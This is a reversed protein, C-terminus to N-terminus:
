CCHAFWGLFSSILPSKGVKSCHFECPLDHQDQRGQRCPLSLLSVRPVLNYYSVGADPDPVTHVTGCSFEKVISVINVINIVASIDLSNQTVRSAWKFQAAITVGDHSNTQRIIGCRKYRGNWEGTWCQCRFEKMGRKVAHTYKLNFDANHGVTTAVSYICFHFM